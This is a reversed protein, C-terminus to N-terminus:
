TENQDSRFRLPSLGTWRKFARTFSANESYGVAEAISQVSLNTRKLLDAARYRRAEDSIAGYTLGAEALRRHLTRESLGFKRSMAAASPIDPLATLLAQGLLPALSNREAREAQLRLCLALNAQHLADDFMPNRADAAGPKLVLRTSPAGFVVSVGCAESLDPSLMCDAVAMDIRAVPASMPNIDNIFALTAGMGRELLFRRTMPDITDAVDAVVTTQDGTEVVHYTLLSRSLASFAELHGLADRMTAATLAALGLPGFSMLRQQLGMRFWLGSLSHSAAVFAVTLADEEEGTLPTEPDDLANPPLGADALITSLPLRHAEITSRIIRM